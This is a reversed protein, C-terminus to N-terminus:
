VLNQFLVLFIVHYFYVSVKIQSIIFSRIVKSKHYDINCFKKLAYGPVKEFNMLPTGGVGGGVEM